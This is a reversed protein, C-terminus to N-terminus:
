GRIESHNKSAQLLDTFYRWLLPSMIHKGKLTNLKPLLLLCHSRTACPCPFNDSDVTLDQKGTELIDVLFDLYM